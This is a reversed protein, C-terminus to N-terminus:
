RKRPYSNKDKGNINKKSKASNEANLGEKIQYFNATKYPRKRPRVFTSILVNKIVKEFPQGNKEYNAAIFFPISLIILILGSVATGLTDKTLFYAPVSTVAALSFCILQRKTLNFAIKTRIKSLDKSIQVYPM